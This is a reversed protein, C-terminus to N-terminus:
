LDILPLSGTDCDFAQPENAEGSLMSIPWPTDAARYSRITNEAYGDVELALEV